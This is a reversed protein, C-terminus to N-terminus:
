WGVCTVATRMPFLAAHAPAHTHHPWAPPLLSLLCSRSLPASQKSRNTLSALSWGLIHRARPLSAVATNYRSTATTQIPPNHASPMSVSDSCCMEFRALSSALLWSSAEPQLKFFSFRNGRRGRRKGSGSEGRMVIKTVFSVTVVSLCLSSLCSSRLHGATAPVLGVIDSQFWL